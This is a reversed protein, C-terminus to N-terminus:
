FHGHSTTAATNDNQDAGINVKYDGTAGQNTGVQMGADLCNSGSELTFDGNWPETMSPDGEVRNNGWTVNTTDNVNDWCNYDFINSDYDASFRAGVLCDKIINNYFANLTGTTGYIGTGCDYFTNNIIINAVRSAVTLGEDTCIGIINGIVRLKDQERIGIKCDHIYCGIIDAPNHYPYIGYGVSSQAECNIYKNDYNWGYIAFRDTTESSNNSHCNIIYCALDVQFGGAATTTVRLNRIEWYDEFTFSNAAAAILPRDTTYAWDSFVPPENSTGSKVGIIKIHSTKTGSLATDWANTLTYTGGAVYYVDGAEASGEVNTEWEALGMAKAWTTGDKTDAGDVTVYMVAAAGFCLRCYLLIFSITLVLHKM